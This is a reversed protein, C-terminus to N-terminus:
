RGRRMEDRMERVLVQMETEQRQRAQDAATIAAIAREIVPLVAKYDELMTRSYAEARDARATERDLMVKPVIQGLIFCGAIIGLAGFQLLSDVPTGGDQAVVWWAAIVGAQLM